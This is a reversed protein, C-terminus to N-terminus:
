ATAKLTVYLEGTMQNCKLIRRFEEEFSFKKQLHHYAAESVLKYDTDVVLDKKLENTQFDNM